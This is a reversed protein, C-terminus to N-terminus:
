TTIFKTYCILLYVNSLICSITLRSASFYIGRLPMGQASHWPPDPPFPAASL